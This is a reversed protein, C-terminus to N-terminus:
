YHGCDLVVELYVKLCVKFVIKPRNMVFLMLHSLFASIYCDVKIVSKKFFFFTYHRGIKHGYNM